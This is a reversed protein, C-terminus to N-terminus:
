DSSDSSSDSSSGNDTSNEQKPLNTNQNPGPNFQNLQQPVTTSGKPVDIMQVDDSPLQAGRQGATGPVSPDAPAQFAEPNDRNTAPPIGAADLIANSREACNDPYKNIGGKQDQKLAADVAAKDQEPTTKIITITTDRRPAERQVYDTLSSGLKTNNGFSFVGQGTVAIATHGIPNGQTPGNEIIAINPAKGDHDVFKLPSNYSYSYRNWSQPGSRDISAGSPDVSMFRGLASAHYRAEFYDLGSESDREKGTFKYHQAVTPCHDTVLGGYPYYDIDQECSGTASVIVSHSGLHNSFYYHVAGSPRDVRAIRTGNFYIYEENITGSLNTEALTGSPGPWYMTGSSKEMRLGDADYSYTVGADTAIRNEADYTPTNGNGDNLVNGAIDYSLGTLHNQTNAPANLPETACNTM